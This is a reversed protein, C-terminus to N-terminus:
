KKSTWMVVRGHQKCDREARPGSTLSSSEEIRINLITGYVMVCLHYRIWSNVQTCYYARNNGRM